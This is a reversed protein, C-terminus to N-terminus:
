HYSELNYEIEKITFKAYCYDDQEMHWISEGYSALKFGNMDKYDRVPTSWRMNTYSNDMTTYYRDDTVFNSLEGMENFYLTASVRCNEDSFTAKVTLPDLMEWQIRADILTAPALVCMDNLLTVAEGQDMHRGRADAVTFLGAVKILMNGEGNVYSDLGLFPIGSMKAKILFLRTPEDLFDCQECKIKVWGKQPDMKMEGACVVRFNQVKEKGIVGAHALYKQVAEPLHAVDDVTLIPKESTERILRKTAEKKYRRQIDQSKYILLGVALIIVVLLFPLLYKVVM